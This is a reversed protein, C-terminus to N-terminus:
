FPFDSMRAARREETSEEVLGSREPVDEFEDESDEHAAKEPPTDAPILFGTVIGRAGRLGV